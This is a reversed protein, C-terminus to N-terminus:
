ALRAYGQAAARNEIEAVCDYDSPIAARAGALGLAAM